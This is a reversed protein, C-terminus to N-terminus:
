LILSDVRYRTSDRLIPIGIKMFVREPKVMVRTTSNLFVVSFPLSFIGTLFCM